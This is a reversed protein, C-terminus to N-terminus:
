PNRAPMLSNRFYLIIDIFVMIGNLIYLFIVYDYNYLIKHLTGSVYGIFVVILFLLSKGAVSKSRISKYISIPWAFGFCLLMMIEFISLNQM